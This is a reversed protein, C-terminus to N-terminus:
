VHCCHYCSCRFFLFFWLLFFLHLFLLLTSFRMTFYFFRVCVCLWVDMSYFHCCCCYRVLYSNFLSGDDTAAAPLHYLSCLDFVRFFFCVYFLLSRVLISDFFHRHNFITGPCSTCVCVCVCLTPRICISHFPFSYSTSYSRPPSLSPSFSHIFVLQFFYVFIVVCDCVFSQCSFWYDNKTHPEVWKTTLRIKRCGWINKKNM